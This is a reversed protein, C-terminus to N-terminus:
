KDEKEIVPRITLQISNGNMCVDCVEELRKGKMDFVIIKGDFVLDMVKHYDKKTLKKM